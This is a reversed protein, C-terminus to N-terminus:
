NQFEPVYIRISLVYNEKSLMTCVTSHAMQHKFINESLIIIIGPDDGLPQSVTLQPFLPTILLYRCDIKTHCRRDKLSCGAPHEGLM